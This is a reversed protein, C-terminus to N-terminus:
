GDGSCGAVLSDHEGAPDAVPVERVGAVCPCECGDAGAGAGPGEIVLSSGVAVGVVAGQSGEGITEDADEVAAETVAGGVVFVGRPCVAGGGGSSM